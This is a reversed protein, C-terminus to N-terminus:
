VSRKVDKAQRVRLIIDDIWHEFLKGNIFLELLGETIKVPLSVLTLNDFLM